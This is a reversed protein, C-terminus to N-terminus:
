AGREAEFATRIAGELEDLQKVLREMQRIAPRLEPRNSRETHAWARLLHARASAVHSEAGLLLQQIDDVPPKV